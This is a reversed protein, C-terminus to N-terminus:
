GQNNKEPRKRLMATESRPGRQTSVLVLGGGANGTQRTRRPVRMVQWGMHGPQSTFLDPLLWINENVEPADVSKRLLGHCGLMDLDQGLVRPRHSLDHM